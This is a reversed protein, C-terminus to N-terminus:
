WKSTYGKFNNLSILIRCIIFYLKDIVKINPWFDCLFLILKESYRLISFVNKKANSFDIKQEVYGISVAHRRTIANNQVRKLFGRLNTKNIENHYVIFAPEIYCEIYNTRIRFSFDFDEFGAFPFSPDFGNVKEFNKKSILLTAGAISYTKFLEHDNWYEYRCWGKMTIFDIEKLYRGFPTKVIAEKLEYPYEWNFNFVANSYVSNLYIARKLAAENILMDDDIFWLLESSSLEAGLNRASAVGKGTNKIVRVNQLDNPLVIKGTPEDDVVVVEFNDLFAASKNIAKLTCILVNERNKTPIVFSIVPLIRNNAEMFERILFLYYM